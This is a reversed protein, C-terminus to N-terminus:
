IVSEAPFGNSNERDSGQRRVCTTHYKLYFCLGMNIVIAIAFGLFIHKLGQMYSDLILNMEVESLGSSKLHYTSSTLQEIAYEDLFSHLALDHKLQNSLVAGSIVLGFAGGFARMFNRLGIAVARDAIASYHEIAVLSTQLTCGMGIGEVVLTSEIYYVSSSRTVTFKIMAGVLWVFFGALLCWSIAKHGLRSIIQGCAISSMTSPILLALLMTGSVIANCGQISQWYIPLYFLNGAYCM